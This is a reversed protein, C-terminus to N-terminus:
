GPSFCPWYCRWASGWVSGWFDERRRMCSGSVPCLLLCGRRVGGPLFPDEAYPLSRRNAPPGDRLGDPELRVSHLPLHGPVPHVCQHGEASRPFVERGRFGRLYACAALLDPSSRLAGGRLRYLLRDRLYRSDATSLGATHRREDHYSCHLCAGAGRHCQTRPQPDGYRRVTEEDTEGKLTQSPIVIENM